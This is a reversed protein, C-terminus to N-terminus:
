VAMVTAVANGSDFETAVVAVGETKAYEGLFSLLEKRPKPDLSELVGDFMLIPVEPTYAKRMAILIAAAIIMREGFAGTLGTTTGDARGIELQYNTNLSVSTFPSFKLRNFLTTGVENFVRRTEQSQRDAEEAAWVSTASLDHLLGRDIEAILLARIESEGKLLHTKILTENAKGGEGSGLLTEADEQSLIRTQNPLENLSTFRVEFSTTNELSALEDQLKTQENQDAIDKPDDTSQNRRLDALTNRAGDYLRKSSDRNDKMQELQGSTLTMNQNAENITARASQRDARAAAAQQEAMGFRRKKDLYDGVIRDRKSKAAQLKELAATHAASDGSEGIVPDHAKVFRPAAGLIKDREEQYVANSEKHATSLSEGSAKEVELKATTIDADLKAIEETPEIFDMDLLDEAQDLVRKAKKLDIEASEKRQTQRTNASEAQRFEGDLRQFEEKNTQEAEEASIKKKQYEVVEHGKSESREIVRKRIANLENKIEERRSDAGELSSKWTNLKMRITKVEQDLSSLKNHWTQYNGAASLDKLVWHFNNPDDPDSNTIARYLRTPPLVSLMTTFLGKSVSNTGKIIGSKPITVSMKGSPASISVSGSSSGRLLLAQDSTRDNLHLTEVEEEYIDEMPPRGVIALHIGRMLSSKGSSSKGKVLNVSGIQLTTKMKEIGGINSIEVDIKGM